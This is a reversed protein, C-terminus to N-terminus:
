SKSLEEVENERYTKLKEVNFLLSQGDSDVNINDGEEIHGFLIETSIYDEVEKQIARRLSRAGYKKDFGKDIIYNKADDTLSIFINRDKIAENLERLMIEIIDKLDEKTLTHFVIIDDIRNLFEPNFNQKLEEMAFNKMDNIDKESGIANFGLSTGKVIDRAGLNSTIIIITNSFDVKRGFNDTLQGEELVQLLINTIDPHAKEIEDFLILSYPKRRVKETLGGGEEYGVYGPPAGILRSVAFKEMFESMDIRILADSDGFMFESLVKALATKGVGTPGLFIFSGLPKKTSKLGARARRIAKSISSIAEKQGVIKSHLEDEMGILRKSESDLLRKVPINTIESIVHRIDDENIITETKDRESRWEAEKKDLEEQLSKIADRLKVAEEFNQNKVVTEKEQNLEKIKNELDKLEQPRVMNMLRARSGAEDILDIAKDPLHREFIYRKSLVASAYIAGDTYKVKHHEEYKSKIGNLIEITDEISPEEVNIPQFRRVLAGDKEIYKKYENITTAGICQIEGRSLAPKLMNAADLAGEAGGAGILTHLEDIFIIINGVKKIEMVINKIREEFEGRYKTGAVVSSLDLSLVRKKLLIDPVDTSVIKEALGEVIATKGVGPEGLLIPNNKKRRSLIQVVRMVENERGIVRDLAKERAMKTLDRAFKDLTPTRATNDEQITSSSSESINSSSGSKGRIRMMEHRLTKLDLNYSTLVNYAIGNEEKLIGLLLHETSICNDGLSKAEEAARSILHQIRPSPPIKGFLKTNSTSKVMSSEIDFKIKEIDIKLKNLVNVVISDTEHFIGLLVHEPTLMDHNLRKAEEVSHLDLIRIAKNTLRFPYSM